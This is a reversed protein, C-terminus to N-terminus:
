EPVYYYLRVTEVDQNNVETTMLRADVIQWTTYRFDGIVYNYM